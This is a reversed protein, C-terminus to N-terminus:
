GPLGNYRLVVDEGSVSPRPFVSVELAEVEVQSAVRANLISVVRDRLHPTIRTARGILIAGVILLLACTVCISRRTIAETSLPRRRLVSFRM